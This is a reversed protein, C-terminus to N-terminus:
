SGNYREAKALDAIVDHRVAPAFWSPDARLLHQAALFFDIHPMQEGREIAYVSRDSVDVGYRSRIAQTFETVRDYGHMVRLARLRRGFVVTNVLNQPLLEQEGGDRQGNEGEDDDKM